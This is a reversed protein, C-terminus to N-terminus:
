GRLLFKGTHEITIFVTPDSIFLWIVRADRSASFEEFCAKVFQARNVNNLLSSDTTRSRLQGFQEPMILGPLVHAESDWPQRPHHCTFPRLSLGM